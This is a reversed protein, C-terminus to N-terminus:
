GLRERVVSAGRDGCAVDHGDLDAREKRPACAASWQAFERDVVLPFTRSRSRRLRSPREIRLCTWLCPISPGYLTRYVQTYQAAIAANANSVTSMKSSPAMHFKPTTTDMTMAIPTWGPPTSSRAGRLRRLVFSRRTEPEADLQSVHLPVVTRAWPSRACVVAPDDSDLGGSPAFCPDQIASAVACRLAPNAVPAEAACM